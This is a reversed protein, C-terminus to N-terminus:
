RCIVCPLPDWPPVPHHWQSTASCLTLAKIFVPVIWNTIFAYWVNGPMVAPRCTFARRQCGCLTDARISHKEAPPTAAPNFGWNTARRKQLGRFYLTMWSTRQLILFVCCSERQRMLRCPIGMAAGSRKFNLRLVVPQNRKLIWQILLLDCLNRWSSSMGVFQWIVSSASQEASWIKDSDFLLLVKQWYGWHSLWLASKVRELLYTWKHYYLMFTALLLM